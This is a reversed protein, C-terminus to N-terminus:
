PNRSINIVMPNLRQMYEQKQLLSIIHFMFTSQKFNRGIGATQSSYEFSKVASFLVRAPLLDTLMETVDSLEVTLDGPFDMM